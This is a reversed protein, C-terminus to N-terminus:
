HIDRPTIARRLPTTPDSFGNQRGCAAPNIPALRRRRTGDRCGSIGGPAGSKKHDAPYPREPQTRIARPMHPMPAPPQHTSANAALHSATALDFASRRLSITAFWFAWISRRAFISGRLSPGASGVGISVTCQHPSLHLSTCLTCCFGSPQFSAKQCCRCPYPMESVSTSNRCFGSGSGGLAGPRLLASGFLPLVSLVFPKLV